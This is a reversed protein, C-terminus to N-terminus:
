YSQTLEISQNNVLEDVTASGKYTQRWRSGEPKFKCKFVVVDEGKFGVFTDMTIQGSSNTEKTDDILNGADDSGKYIEIKTGYPVNYTNWGSKYKLTVTVPPTTYDITATTHDRASLQITGSAYNQAITFVLTQREYVNNPVYLICHNDERVTYSGGSESKIQVNSWDLYNGFIEITHEDPSIVNDGPNHLDFQLELTEGKNQQSSCTYTGTKGNLTVVGFDFVDGVNVNDFTATNNENKFYPNTVTITTASEAVNTKFHFFFTPNKRYDNYTVTAKYSFTHDGAEVPIRNQSTNPYITKDEPEMNLTLPFVANPMNDPLRVVLTMEANVKREVHQDCDVASFIFPNRVYVTVKRSLLSPTSIIFEQKQMLDTTAAPTITITGNEDDKIEQVAAKNYGGEDPGGVPTVIVQGNAENGEAIYKYTMTYPESSVLMINMDSVWLENGLGDEIDNVESVEVSASLNNSAANEMAEEPSDYGKGVVNKIHVKYHFNRYLNLYSTIYNKDVTVIDLKYYTEVNDYKAKILLFAPADSKDQNREYVYKDNTDWLSLDNDEILQGVNNRGDFGNNVSVFKDYANEGSALSLNFDAFGGNEERGAYPAVTGADLADIVKYGVLTLPSTAAEGVVDLSIKAFNRVLKIREPFLTEGDKINISSVEVRQWYADNGESTSLKSFISSESDGRTYKEYTVDGLVFHLACPENSPPLSVKFKISGDSEQGMLTAECFATFFGNKDFVLVRMPKQALEDGVGWARSAEMPEPISATFLYEGPKLNSTGQVMEEQRCATLLLTVLLTIYLSIKKM